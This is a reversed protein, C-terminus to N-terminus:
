YRPALVRILEWCRDSSATAANASPTRLPKARSRAARWTAAQASHAYATATCRSAIQARRAAGGGGSGDPRTSRSRATGIVVGISDTGVATSRSPRGPNAVKKGIIAAANTGSGGFDGVRRDV